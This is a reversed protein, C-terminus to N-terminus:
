GCLPAHWGACGTLEIFEPEPFRIARRIRARPLPRQSYDEHELREYTRHGHAVLFRRVVKDPLSSLPRMWAIPVDAEILVPVGISQLGGALGDHSNYLAEGGWHRLLDGIGREGAIGPRFFCFWIRGARNKEAAQNAAKYGQAAEPSMEGAAVRADIRRHLMEESPLSMGNCEITRIEDETLRSCHLGRLSYRKLLEALEALRREHHEFWYGHEEYGRFLEHHEELFAQLEAPWRDVHEIDLLELDNKMSWGVRWELYTGEPPCGM